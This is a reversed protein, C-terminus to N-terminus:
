KEPPDEFKRPIGVKLQIEDICAQLERISQALLVMHKICSLLNRQLGIQDIFNKTIKM